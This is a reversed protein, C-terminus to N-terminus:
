ATSAGKILRYSRCFRSPTVRWNTTCNHCVYHREDQQFSRSGCTPCLCRKHLWDRYTDLCDQIHNEDIAGLELQVALQKAHEWAAVEMELLEFDNRYTQHALLAHSAEHLLSWVAGKDSATARYAIERKEPSWYFHNDARFSLEPFRVLLNDILPQM